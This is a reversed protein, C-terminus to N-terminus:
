NGTNLLHFGYAEKLIELGELNTIAGFSGDGKELKLIVVQGKYDYTGNQYRLMGFYGNHETELSHLNGTNGQELRAPLMKGDSGPLYWVNQSLMPNVANQTEVRTTNMVRWSGDQEGYWIGVAVDAEEVKALTEPTCPTNVQVVIGTNEGGTGETQSPTTKGAKVDEESISASVEMGDVFEATELDLGMGLELVLAIEPPIAEAPNDEYLSRIGEDMPGTGATVELDPQVDPDNLLTLTMELLAELQESKNEETAAVTKEQKEAPTNQKQVPAEPETAKPAEAPAEPAPKAPQEEAAPQVNEEPKQEVASASEMRTDPQERSPLQDEHAPEAPQIFEEQKQEEASGPEMTQEGEAPQVNEEPKQEEEPTVNTQDPEEPASGEPDDVTGGAPEDSLKDSPVDVTGGEPIDSPIDSPTGETGGDPEDSPKDSPVDVTGGEPIDSPIDSPAAETGGAPEDPSIGTGVTEDTGAPEAEETIIGAPISDSPASVPAGEPEEAVSVTLILVLTLVLALIKKM